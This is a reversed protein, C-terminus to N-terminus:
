YHKCRLCEKSVSGTFVRGGRKGSGFNKGYWQVYSKLNEDFNTTSVFGLSEVKKTGACLRMVEGPRSAVRIIKSSSGSYQVIKEALDKIKVTRGTGVNIVQGDLGEHEICIMYGKIADSIHMYDREQEGTGFVRLDENALAKRTFIAIVGGYSTDNQYPGFTNFNRLIRVDTGFADFYSKCLRDAGVKSAGYPSSADLPHTEDMFECQSTGYVESTSAFVMRKKHKRCAELVNLTGTINIDVTEQPNEISKDVHIQAALHCVVDAWRVYPEVDHSYRVDGYHFVGEGLFNSSPHFLNDIGKVEHGQALLHNALHSGIFGRIGTIFVKM